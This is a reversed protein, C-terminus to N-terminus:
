ALLRELADCATKVGDEGQVAAAMSAARAAYGPERLLAGLEAVCRATTYRERPLSRAVGLRRLRRAHDPQDHSYPVVLMPRGSRMAEATTGIGGQHVIAQARPFVSAHPAYPLAIVSEPLARRPLNAGDRGILLVARVGLQLVADLSREYFDGAHGVAASGLTFVVPPEGSALYRELEPAPEADHAYFPFGSALTHPPWDAQPAALVKSFLALHLYPSPHSPLVPNPGRPLGLEAELRRYPRLWPRFSLDLLTYFFRHFRPPFGAIREAFPLGPFAPADLTSFLSVPALAVSAWPRGSARALLIASYAIPHTVLLEAERTADRLDEYSERLQGLAFELLITRSGTRPNMVRELLRRDNPDIDPRVPVFGLGESEVQARYHPTSGITPRHGRRLLERGLALYPHLDGLSGFTVLLIRPVASSELSTSASDPGREAGGSM